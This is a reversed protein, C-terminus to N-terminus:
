GNEIDEMKIKIKKIKSLKGKIRQYVKDPVEYEKDKEFRWVKSFKIYKFPKIGQKLKVKMNM